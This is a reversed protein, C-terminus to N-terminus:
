TVNIRDIVQSPKGKKRPRKRIIPEYYTEKQKQHLFEYAKSLFNKLEKLFPYRPSFQYMRTKGELFSVVIGGTELRDLVKQFSSLAQQFTKSLQQGCCRENM